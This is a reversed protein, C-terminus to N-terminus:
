AEKKFLENMGNELQEWLKTIRKAIVDSTEKEEAVYFLKDFPIEWKSRGKDDKVSGFYENDFVKSFVVEEGGEVASYNADTFESYAKHIIARMEDTIEKRKNGLSKRLGTVAKSANILQVKGKRNEKKTKSIVWIYTTIGTNYFLEGSLQIICDLYDNKIIYRRIESEGSGPNGSFLPSGNHIIAMRGNKNLKSIGNLTFLMQGDSIKPLGPAFRGQNGMANESEVEYRESEWNVGFPPNSIIFDFVDGSFGDDSLTDGCYFNDTDVNDILASAVAVAFTEKNIEQGYTDISIHQERGVTNEIHRKMNTLMQSTGMAMDYITALGKEKVRDVNDCLLVDCCTLVIDKATFHQGLNANDSEQFKRIINEFITGMEDITLVGFNLGSSAYTRVLTSLIRCDSLKVLKSNFDFNDLIKKVNDSFGDIYEEFAYEINDQGEKALDKFTYRSTNYFKYDTDFGDNVAKYMEEAFINSDEGVEQARKLVREKSPLLLDDFRKIVVFPLIVGGYASQQFYGRLNDASNWILGEINAHSSNSKDLNLKALMHEAALQESTKEGNLLQMYGLMPMIDNLDLDMIFEDSQRKVLTLVKFTEVFSGSYVLALVNSGLASIRSMLSKTTGITTDKDATNNTPVGIIVCKDYKENTITFINDLGDVNSYVTAIDPNSVNAGIEARFGEGACCGNKICKNVFIQQSISLEM